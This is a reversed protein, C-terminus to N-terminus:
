AARAGELTEQHFNFLYEVIDNTRPFQPHQRAEALKFIGGDNRAIGLREIGALARELMTQPKRELEPDVFLVTPLDRLATELALQADRKTFQTIGGAHIWAGLLASTTVPRVRKLQLDLAMHPVSPVVHYLMSLRKGVLPDYSIGALWIEGLPALRSLAGRLRQMKGDGSYDGEPALFVTAGSRELTEFHALDADVQRRTLELLEKRYPELVETLKVRSRGAMFNKGYLLDDLRRVSRPLRERASGNFVSEVPLDPHRADLAYAVSVFPRVTLENEIPQLGLASFLWGFNFPRLPLSLWPIREAFFGPEWMRRSSVTFIPYRWSFSRVTLDSILVASEIEHQHNAILLMPGRRIPLTGWGRIRYAIHYYAIVSLISLWRLPQFYLPAVGLGADTEPPAVRRERM